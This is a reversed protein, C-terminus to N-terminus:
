IFFQFQLLFRNDEVEHYFTGIDESHWTLGFEFKDGLYGIGASPYGSGWGGRLSWQGAVPIEIGSAFRGELPVASQNTLDRLQLVLTFPIKSRSRSSKRTSTRKGKRIPSPPFNLALDFTMPEPPLTGSANVTIPLLASGSFNVGGINRAVFHFEPLYKKGLNLSAGLNHSFGAGQSLGSWYSLDQPTTDLVTGSAQHIWQFSYGFRLRGKFLSFGTGIAPILQYLSRYRFTGDNNMQGGFQSNVLIGFSLGPTRFSTGMSYGASAFVGPSNRLYEAYQNLDLVKYFSTDFSGLYNVNGYSSL